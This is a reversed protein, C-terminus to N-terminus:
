PVNIIVESTVVLCNFIGKAVLNGFGANVFCGNGIGHAVCGLVGELNLLTDVTCDDSEDDDSYDSHDAAHHDENELLFLDESLSIPRPLAM